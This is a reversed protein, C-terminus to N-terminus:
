MRLDLGTAALTLRSLAATEAPLQKDAFQASSAEADDKARQQDSGDGTFEFAINEFGLARFEAALHEANRRMLDLTEPREAFIAIVMSADQPSMSMRVRGLEEPSLAVDIPGNGNAQFAVEVLQRAIQAAQPPVHTPAPSATRATALEPGPGESIGLPLADTKSSKEELIQFAFAPTALAASQMMAVKQAAPVEATAAKRPDSVEVSNEIDASATRPEPLTVEVSQQPPQPPLDPGPASRQADRPFGQHSRHSDRPQAESPRHVDGLTEAKGESQPPKLISTEAQGVKISEGQAPIRETPLERPPAESSSGALVLHKAAEVPKGDAEVKQPTSIPVIQQDSSLSPTAPAVIAEGVNQGATRNPIQPSGSVELTQSKALPVTESSGRSWPSESTDTRQPSAVERPAKTEAVDNASSYASVAIEPPSNDSVRKQIADGQAANQPERDRGTTPGSAESPVDRAVRERPAVDDVPRALAANDAVNRDVARKAVEPEPEGKAVPQDVERVAAKRADSEATKEPGEPANTEKLESGVPLGDIVVAKPESGGPVQPLPAEPHSVVAVMPNTVQAAPNGKASSPGQFGLASGVHATQPVVHRAAEPILTSTHHSQRVLGHPDISPAPTPVDAVQGQEVTSFITAFKAVASGEPTQSPSSKAVEAQEGNPKLFDFSTFNLM